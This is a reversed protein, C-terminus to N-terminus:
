VRLTCNVLRIMNVGDIEIKLTNVGAISLDFSDPDVGAKIMPSQYILQGDAYIRLFTDPNTQTRYDYNLVVTGTLRSFRGELAYSQFSKPHLAGDDTGGFGYDYIKGFNDKARDYIQFGDNINSADIWDLTKLYIESQTPVSPRIASSFTESSSDPYLVCDVLRAMNAGEIEVRVDKVGVLSLEFPYVNCGATIMPSQYLLIDDGYIWVFVEDSKQVRVDYNLTVTGTMREYKGDIRYSQFNTKDSLVGGIANSYVAGYNDKAYNYSVLGGDAQSANFWDLRSLYTYRPPPVPTASPPIPTETPPVPTATPPTPTETPPVPTETAVVPDPLTAINSETPVIVVTSSPESESKGAGFLFKAFIAVFVFVVVVVLLKIWFPDRKYQM